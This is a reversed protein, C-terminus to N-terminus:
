FEKRSMIKSSIKISVLLVIVAAILIVAAMLGMSSMQLNNITNIIDIGLMEAAKVIVAVIISLVGLAGILAIRGKEGGFKPHFPIMVAQILLLSPLIMVAVMLIESVDATKKSLSFVIATIVAFIWAGGGLLLALCYKEATYCTRSIPLTFLFANGNDFEDYSITSLTFLSLVFPLFGLIFSFDDSFAAMAIEIIFILFFFNKQGKMLQFDKILLGKM